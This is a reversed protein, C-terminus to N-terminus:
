NYVGDWWAGGDLIDNRESLSCLGRNQTDLPGHQWMDFNDHADAKDETMGVEPDEAEPMLQVLSLGPHEEEQNPKTEVDDVVGEQTKRTKKPHSQLFVESVVIDVDEADEKADLSYQHQTWKGKKTTGGGKKRAELIFIGKWGKTTAGDSDLICKDNGTKRWTFEDSVTGDSKSIKRHKRRGAGRANSLSHFFFSNRGNSKIGLLMLSNLGNHHFRGDSNLFVAAKPRCLLPARRIEASWDDSVLPVGSGHTGATPTSSSQTRRDVSFLPM